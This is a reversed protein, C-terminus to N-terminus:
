AGVIDSALTKECNVVSNRQIEEYVARGVSEHDVTISKVVSASWANDRRSDLYQEIVPNFLRVYGANMSFEGISTRVTLLRHPFVREVFVDIVEIPYAAYPVSPATTCLACLYCLWAYDADNGDRADRLREDFRSTPRVRCMFRVPAVFDSSIFYSLRVGIDLGNAITVRFACDYRAAKDALWALGDTAAMAEIAGAEDSTVVRKPDIGCGALWAAYTQTEKGYPRSTKPNVPGDTVTYRKGFEEKGFVIRCIAAEDFSSPRPLPPAASLGDIAGAYLKPSRMYLAVASYDLLRAAARDDYYKDLDNTVSYRYVSIM